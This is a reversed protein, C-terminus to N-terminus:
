VKRALATALKFYKNKFRASLVRFKLKFNNYEYETLDMRNLLYSEPNLNIGGSSFYVKNCSLTNLMSIHSDDFCTGPQGNPFSFSNISNEFQSLSSQNEKFNTIFDEPTLSASNWHRYLHNGYFLFKSGSFKQLLNLNALEGQYKLIESYDFNPNEILFESFISPNISLHFEKADSFKGGKVGKSSYRSLYVAMASILPTKNLIHGMNLFMVSPIGQAELFTLGNEFAGRFGDDFSILAAKPPLSSFNDIDNPSVINYHNKIWGIQKRFLKPTVNLHYDDCFQSPKDIVEHYLFVSLEKNMM